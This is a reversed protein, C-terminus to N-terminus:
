GWTVPLEEVGYIIMEDRMRVQELPVALALGPLRQLLAAFGIRMEVRALQQGLCQHVGHGFALHPIHDRGVDLQDPHAFHSPDRNAAAVSLVLPDGPAITHGGLRVEETAVRILGFQVITLYRLLEEVAGDLLSPDGRLRELQAPHRLLCLTGLALMNATTEHGAVLLLLGINLLEEDDLADEGTHQALGSLLDDVPHARKAAILESMYGRLEERNRLLEPGETALSLLKRSMRQFRQRDAYPVGLLECIVLSPVPLAFRAVLDAPPGAALMEAIHEAVIEGIRPELSRMRRVTFQGTLLRRYRTHEPPDLSIFQGPEPELYPRIEEPVPRLPNAAISRRSSFRPDALVARVDDYRTVLWGPRGEPFALPSIPDEARLRTYEPPPELPDRRQRPLTTLPSRPTTPTSM